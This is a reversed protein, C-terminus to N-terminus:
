HNYFKVHENKYNECKLIVFELDPWLCKFLHSNYGDLVDYVSIFKSLFTEDILKLDRIKELFNVSLNHLVPQNSHLIKLLIELKKDNILGTSIIDDM